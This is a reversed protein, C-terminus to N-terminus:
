LHFFHNGQNSFAGVTKTHLKITKRTNQAEHVCFYNCKFDNTIVRIEYLAIGYNTKFTGCFTQHLLADSFIDSIAVEQGSLSFFM